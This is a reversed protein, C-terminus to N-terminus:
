TKRLRTGTAVPEGKPAKAIMEDTVYAGLGTKQNQKAVIKKSKDVITGTEDVDFNQNQCCSDFTFFRWITNLSPLSFSSSKSFSKMESKDLLPEKMEKKGSNVFVSM